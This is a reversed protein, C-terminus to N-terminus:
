AEGQWGGYFLQLFYSLIFDSVAKCCFQSWDTVTQHDVRLEAHCQPDFFPAKSQVLACVIVSLWRLCYSVDEEFPQNQQCSFWKKTVSGVPYGIDAEIPLNVQGTDTLPLRVHRRGVTATHQMM